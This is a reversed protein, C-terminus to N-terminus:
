TSRTGVNRRERRDALAALLRDLADALELALALTDAGGTRAAAQVRNALDETAKAMLNGATGKLDHAAKGIERLDGAAAWLRLRAPVEHNTELTLAAIRDVMGPHNRYRERLAEWDVIGPAPSGQAADESPRDIPAARSATASESSPRRRAHRLVAAVLEEHEIPKSVQDVM